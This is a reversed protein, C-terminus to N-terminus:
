GPDERSSLSKARSVCTAICWFLKKTQGDALTYLPQMIFRDNDM